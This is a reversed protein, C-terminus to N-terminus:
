VCKVAYAARGRKVVLEFGGPQPLIRPRVPGHRPSNRSQVRIARMVRDTLAVGSSERGSGADIYKVVVLFKSALISIVL